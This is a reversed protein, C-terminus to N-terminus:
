NDESFIIALDSMLSQMRTHALDISASVLLECMQRNQQEMYLSALIFLMCKTLGVKSSCVAHLSAKTCYALSYLGTPGTPM